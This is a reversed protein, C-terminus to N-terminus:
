ESCKVLVDFLQVRPTDADTTVTVRLRYQTGATAASADIRWRVAKGIAVTTQLIQLSESSVAVLSLSLDATDVEAVSVSDALEGSDLWSSLDLSADDTDGVSLPMVPLVPIGGVCHLIADCVIVRAPDADTTITLRVIYVRGATANAANVRCVAALGAAVSVGFISLTGTSPGAASLSLDATDIEAATVSAVTEGADLWDSLDVRLQDDCGAAITRYPQLQLAM